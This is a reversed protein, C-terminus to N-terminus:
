HRMSRKLLSKCLQSKKLTNTKYTIMYLRLKTSIYRRIKDGNNNTLNSYIHMFYLIFYAYNVAVLALVVKVDHKENTKLFSM